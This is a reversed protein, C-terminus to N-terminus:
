AIARTNMIPHVQVGEQELEKTTALRGGAEHAIAACEHWTLTRDVMM